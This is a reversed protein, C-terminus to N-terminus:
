FLKLEFKIPYKNLAKDIRDKVNYRYGHVYMNKLVRDSNLIIGLLIDANWKQELYNPEFKHIIALDKRKIKTQLLVEESSVFDILIGNDQYCYYLKDNDKNCHIIIDGDIQQRLGKGKVQVALGCEDYIDALKSEYRSPTETVLTLTNMDYAAHDLVYETDTSAGDVIVYRIDKYPKHIRKKAEEIVENIYLVGLIGGDSISMNFQRRYRKLADDLILIDIDYNILHQNFAQIISTIYDEDEQKTPKIVPIRIYFGPVSGYSIDEITNPFKKISHKRITKDGCFKILPNGFPIQKIEEFCDVYAYRKGM